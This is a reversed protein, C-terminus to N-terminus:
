KSFREVIFAIVTLLVLFALMGVIVLLTCALPIGPCIMIPIFCQWWAWSIYGGLKAGVFLLTLLFCFTSGSIGSKYIVVKDESIM